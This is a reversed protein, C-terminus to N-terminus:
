NTILSFVQKINKDINYHESRNGNSNKNQNWFTKLFKLFELSVYEQGLERKFRKKEEGNALESCANIKDSILQTNKILRTVGTPM